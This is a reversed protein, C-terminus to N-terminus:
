FHHSKESKIQTEMLFNIKIIKLVRILLVDREILEVLFRLFIGGEVFTKM